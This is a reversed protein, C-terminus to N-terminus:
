RRRGGGGGGRGGGGGGGSRGGGGGGGTSRGGRSSSSRASSGSSGGYASGGSKSPAKAAPKSAGGGGAPRSAGGGGAPKGAGGGGGAPRSAGGGGAPKNGGGLSNGGRNSANNAPGKGSGAGGFGGQGNSPLQAPRHGAGGGPRGAGGPPKVGSGGGPRNGPGPNKGPPRPNPTVPKSGPGGPRNWGGPKSPANWRGGGANNNWGGSPRGGSWNNINNNINIDGGHWGGGNNWGWNFNNYAWAGAVGVALGVGFGYLPATGSYPQVVTVPNYTPVYLVEPNAQEIVIVQASDAPVQGTAPDVAPPIEEVKMYEDTKLNGAKQTEARFDQIAGLVDGNQTAVAQGMQGVWELNENLWKLVDPFQLMALVSADWTVGEPAADVKGGKEEAYRAASVLELPYATAPLLSALVVDPYLAIPGVLEKLEEKTWAGAAPAAPPAGPAPPDAFVGVASPLLLMGAIVAARLARSLGSARDITSWRIAPENM